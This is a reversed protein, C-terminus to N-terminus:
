PSEGEIATVTASMRALNIVDGLKSLEDQVAAHQLVVAPMNTDLYSPPPPLISFKHFLFAWILETPQCGIYFHFMKIIVGGGGFFYFIILGTPELTRYPPPPHVVPYKSSSYPYWDRVSNDSVGFLFLVFAFSAIILM